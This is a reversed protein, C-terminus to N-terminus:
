YGVATWHMIGSGGLPTHPAGQWAAAHVYARFGRHDIVENGPNGLSCLTVYKKHPSSATSCTAVVIPSCGPTFFSGFSVDLGGVTYEAKHEAVWRTLGAIMKTGANRKVGNATYQITPMHEFLWQDNNTMKNLTDVDTPAGIPWTVNQYPQATM